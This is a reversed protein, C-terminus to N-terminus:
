LIPLKVVTFWYNEIARILQIFEQLGLPKCLYSNAGLKYATLIEEQSDSTTLVLVPIHKFKDDSKIKKLVEQGGLGPLNLDLLILDPLTANAYEDKRHLYALAQIGDRVLSIKVPSPSDEFAEQILDSDGLDDEVVLLKMPRNSVM